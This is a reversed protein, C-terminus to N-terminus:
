FLLKKFANWSIKATLFIFKVFQKLLLFMLVAVGALVFGIGCIFLGHPIFGAASFPIVSLSFCIGSVALAFDIAYFSIVLSFLVVWISLIIVIISLILPFWLPAGLILLIIEWTRLTHKKKAKEKIIKKIPTESIIQSVIDDINGLEKIAEEESMGGDIKDDIIENYYELTKQIDENSLGTLKIELEKLFQTKNM